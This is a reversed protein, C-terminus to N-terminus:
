ARGGRLCANNARLISMAMRGRVYGVLKSYVRECKDALLSAIRKEFSGAERCAMRDVSYVLPTFGRRRDLCAQLYKNKKCKIHAELVKKSTDDKYSPQDTDSICVDLVCSTKRRGCATSSSTAARKRARKTAPARRAVVSRPM